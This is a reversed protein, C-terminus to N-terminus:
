IQEKDVWMRKGDILKWANKKKKIIFSDLNRRKLRSSIAVSSVGLKEAIKNYSFKNVMDILESDSPWVIKCGINFIHIKKRKIPSKRKYGLKKGSLSKSIKLKTEPSVKRGSVGDGGATLNYGFENGFRNVDSKYHEIWFKEKELVIIEDDFYELIEFKFNDEGYKAIAAHILSFNINGKVKGRQAVRVHEEFRSSSKIFREASKGVYIKSNVKNRIIYVYYRM